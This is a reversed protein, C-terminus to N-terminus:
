RPIYVAVKMIRATITGTKSTSRCDGRSRRASEYHVTKDPATIRGNAEATGYITASYPYTGCSYPSDYKTITFARQYGIPSTVVSSGFTITANTMVKVYASPITYATTGTSNSYLTKWYYSKPPEGGGVSGGNGVAKKIEACLTKYAPHECNIPKLSNDPKQLGNGLDPRTGSDRKQVSDDHNVFARPTYVKDRVTSYDAFESNQKPRKQITARPPKIDAESTGDNNAPSAQAVSSLGIACALITFALRM